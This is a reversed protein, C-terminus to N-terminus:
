RDGTNDIMTGGSRDDAQPADASRETSAAGHEADVRRVRGDATVV